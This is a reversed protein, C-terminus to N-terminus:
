HLGNINYSSAVNYVVVKARELIAYCYFHTNLFM